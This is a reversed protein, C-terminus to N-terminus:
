LDEDVIGTQISADLMSLHEDAIMTEPEMMLIGAIGACEREAGNLKRSFRDYYKGPALGIVELMDEIWEGRYYIARCRLCSVGAAAASIIRCDPWSLLM